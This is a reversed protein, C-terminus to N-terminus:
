QNWYQLTLYSRWPIALEPDPTKALTARTRAIGADSDLWIDPEKLARMKVYNVTWNGIGKIGLWQDLEEPQDADQFWQSFSKLTDKRSQPMGLFDLASNTVAPATPFLKNGNSYTVGLHDVLRTALQVAQRVSVQQGLIARVGAEYTSWIGPLRIGRQYNFEAPCLKELQQDILDMNADLDFLERIRRVILNLNKWHSLQLNLLFYNQNRQYSIEFYGQTQEFEFTRGYHNETCWELGDVKRHDLFAHLHAWNFPPRYYLKLTLNDSAQSNSEKRVRSPTLGMRNKFCDNFRRLSKFGSALAIDTISLRTQHLLKKAFLCQQYLAYSKPSIGINSEFLQRLYRDTIGLREALQGVSGEQLAGEHILRMARQFSTQTGLWTNCGPASDPRCRLCPRFGANGAAAASEFYLVNEDKPATAPCIPRCYIGTSKVATFFLGDFRPDRSLRAKRYFQYTNCMDM